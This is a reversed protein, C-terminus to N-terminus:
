QRTDRVFRTALSDKEVRGPVCLLNSPKNAVVIHDDVYIIEQKILRNQAGTSTYHTSPAFFRTALADTSYVDILPSDRMITSRTEFGKVGPM